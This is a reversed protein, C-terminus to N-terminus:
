LKSCQVGEFHVVNLMSSGDALSRFHLSKCGSRELMGDAGVGAPAHGV